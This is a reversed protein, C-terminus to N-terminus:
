QNIEKMVSNIERRELDLIEKALNEDYKEALTKKKKLIEVFLNLKDPWGLLIGMLQQRKLFDFHRLFDEILAIDKKVVNQEELYIKVKDWEHM